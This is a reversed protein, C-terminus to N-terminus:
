PFVNPDQSRFKIELECSMMENESLLKDVVDSKHQVFRQRGSDVFCVNKGFIQKESSNRIHTLTNLNVFTSFVYETHEYKPKKSPEPLQQSLKRKTSTHLHHVAALQQM